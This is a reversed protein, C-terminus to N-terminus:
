SPGLRSDGHVEPDFYRLMLEVEAARLSCGIAPQAIEHTLHLTGINTGGSTSSPQQATADPSVTGLDVDITYGKRGRRLNGRRRQGECVYKVPLKKWTWRTLPPPPPSQIVAAALVTAVVTAVVAAKRWAAAAISKGQDGQRPWLDCWPLGEQSWRGHLSGCRQSIPTATAALPYRCHEFKMQSLHRLM